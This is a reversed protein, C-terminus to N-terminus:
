TTLDEKIEQIGSSKQWRGQRIKGSNRDPQLNSRGAKEGKYYVSGKDMAFDNKLFKFTNKDVNAM